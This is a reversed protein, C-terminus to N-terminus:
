VGLKFLATNPYGAAKAAKTVKLSNTGSAVVKFPPDVPVAIYLGPYEKKLDAYNLEFWDKATQAPMKTKREGCEATPTM